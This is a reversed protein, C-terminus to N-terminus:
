RRTRSRSRSRRSRKRKKDRSNHVRGIISPHVLSSVPRLQEMFNQVDASGSGPNIPPPRAFGSGKVPNIQPPRVFGPTAGMGVGVLPPPASVPIKAPVPPPKRVEQPQQKHLWKCNARSCYGKYQFDFCIGPESLRRRNSPIAPTGIVRDKQPSVREEGKPNVGSPNMTNKVKDENRNGANKRKSLTLRMKVQAACYDRWSDEDFGYNFWDTIDADAERWPKDDLSNLENDYIAPYNKEDDSEPESVDMSRFMFPDIKPTGTVQRDNKRSRKKLGELGKDVKKQDELSKNPSEENNLDKATADTGLKGEQKEVRGGVEKVQQKKGSETPKEEFGFIDGYEDSRKDIEPKLEAKVPNKVSGTSELKVSAKGAQKDNLGFINGYDDPRKVSPAGSEQLTKGRNTQSGFIDM